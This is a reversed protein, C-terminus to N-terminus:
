KRLCDNCFWLNNLYKGQKIKGEKEVEPEVNDVVQAGCSSCSPLIEKVM